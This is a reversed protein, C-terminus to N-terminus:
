GKPRWTVKGLITNGLQKTHAWAASLTWEGPSVSVEVEAQAKTDKNNKEVTFTFGDGTTGLKDLSDKIPSDSM